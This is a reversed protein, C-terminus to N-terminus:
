NNQFIKGLFVNGFFLTYQLVVNAPNTLKYIFNSRIIHERSYRLLILNLAYGMFHNGEKWRYKLREPQDFHIIKVFNFPCSKKFIIHNRAANSTSHFESGRTSTKRM